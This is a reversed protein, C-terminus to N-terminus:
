PEQNTSFIIPFLDYFQDHHLPKHRIFHLWRFPNLDQILCKASECLLIVKLFWIIWGGSLPVYNTLSLDIIRTHCLPSSHFVILEFRNFLLLFNLKLWIWTRRLLKIYIYIYIYIYILHTSTHIHVFMRIRTEFWICFNIAM